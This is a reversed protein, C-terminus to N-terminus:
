RLAAADTRGAESLLLAEAREAHRLGAEAAGAALYATALNGCARGLQYRDPAGTDSRCALQALALWEQRWEVLRLSHLQRQREVIKM